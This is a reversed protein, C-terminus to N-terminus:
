SCVREPVINEGQACRKPLGNCAGSSKSRSEYRFAALSNSGGSSPSVLRMHSREGAAPAARWPVMKPTGPPPPTPNGCTLHRKASWYPLLPVADPLDTVSTRMDPEYGGNMGRMGTRSSSPDSRTSSRHDRETEDDRDPGEQRNAPWGNIGVTGNTNLM